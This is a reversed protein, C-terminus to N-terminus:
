GEIDLMCHAYVKNNNASEGTRCSNKECQRMFLVIKSLVNNFMFHSYRKETCIEELIYRITLIISRSTFFYMTKRIFHGNNKDSKFSVQIKEASKRFFVSICFKMFIRRTTASNNWASLRVSMVFSITAQRFKTFAGLFLTSATQGPGLVEDV